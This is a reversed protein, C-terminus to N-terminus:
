YLVGIILSHHNRTIVYVTRRGQYQLMEEDSHRQVLVNQSQGLVLVSQNELEMVVNGAQGPANKEAEGQKVALHRKMHVNRSGSQSFTKGCFECEFPKVGLTFSLM